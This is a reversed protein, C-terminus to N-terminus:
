RRLARIEDILEGFRKTEDNDRKIARHYAKLMAFLGSAIFLIGCIVFGWLQIGEKDFAFLLLVIGIPLYINAWALFYEAM